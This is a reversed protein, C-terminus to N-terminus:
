PEDWRVELRSLRRVVYGQQWKAAGESALRLAPFARALGSLFVEAMMRASSAGVCHHAGHGFALHPNPQRSLDLDNPDAFVRGDRNAAIMAPLVAEGACVTVGNVDVDELAVRIFGGAVGIPVFRLLEEVARRAVVLEGLAPWLPRQEPQMMLHVSSSLFVSPSGRGGVLLAVLLNVLEAGDLAGREDMAEVLHSVVDERPDRRRVEVLQLLYEELDARATAIDTEPAVASTMVDALANFRERDDVPVGLLECVLLLPLSECVPLLDSPSGQARLRAILEGVIAVARPRLQEARRATFAGAIVRRLRTHEPPDMAMISSAPLVEPSLRAVDPRTAKARSFRQDALVLRVDDYSSALWAEGGVPLRVRHLRGGRLLPDFEPELTADHYHGFPYAPPKV